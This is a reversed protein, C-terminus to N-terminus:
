ARQLSLRRFVNDIETRVQEAIDLVTQSDASGKVDINITVNPASEYSRENNNVNYVPVNDRSGGLARYAAATKETLIMEGSHLNAMYNDHPVRDLGKAHSPVDEKSDGKVGLLKGIFGVTGKIPHKVFEKLKGWAGKIKNLAGVAKDRLNTFFRGTSELAACLYGKLGGGLENARKKINKWDRVLHVGIMILVSAAGVVLGIPSCIFSIASGLAPLVFSAIFGFVHIVTGAVSIMTGIGSILKGGVVLLPGAAVAMLGFQVIKEKTEPSLERFRNTLEGIKDAIPILVPAIADGLDIMTNKMKNVAKQWTYANGKMKEANRDTSGQANNMTGLMATYGEVGDSLLSLAASGATSQSFMDKLTLGSEKAANDIIGLVQGLNTGQETLQAFSRGTRQRLVEDTASGTTSLENIMADLRTTAKTADMGKLTLISYAAGLQDVNVGAAAATPIVRGISGALEDVTIKGKDQTKVLIDSIKSVDFAKDGYANLITTTADIATSLDTFGAETLNIAKKTFDVVKSEDVGASLAEYMANAVDSQAIGTADSIDLVEKKIKDVPLIGDSTLTSVQRIAKDLDNAWKFAKTGAVTLPLTMKTIKGGLKSVSDGAGSIKGGISKLGGGINKLSDSFSFMKSKTNDIKNDLGEVAKGAESAGNVKILWALSRVDAM